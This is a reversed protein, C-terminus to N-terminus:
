GHRERRQHRKLLADLDVEASEAPSIDVTLDLVALLRLVKDLEARPHGNEVEVLWTRGVKAETALQAQTLNREHRRERIVTGLEQATRARVRGAGHRREVVNYGMDDFSSM